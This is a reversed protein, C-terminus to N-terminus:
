QSHVIPWASPRISPVIIIILIIVAPAMVYQINVM